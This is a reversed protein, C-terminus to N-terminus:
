FVVGNPSYRKKKHKRGENVGVGNPKRRKLRQKKVEGKNGFRRRENNEPTEQRRGQSWRGEIERSGENQRFIFSKEIEVLWHQPDQFPNCGM